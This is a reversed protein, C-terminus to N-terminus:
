ITDIKILEFPSLNYCPVGGDYGVLDVFVNHTAFGIYLLLRASCTLSVPLVACPLLPLRKMSFLAM